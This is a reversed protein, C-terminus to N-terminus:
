VDGPQKLAYITGIRMFGNRRYFVDAAYNDIGSTVSTRVDVVHNDRCWDIFEQLLGKAVKGRDPLDHDVYIGEEVGLVADSYIIKTLYGCMAGRVVGDMVAVRLFWFPSDMAMTAFQEVRTSNYGIHHLRAEAYMRQALVLFGAKTEPSLPVIM